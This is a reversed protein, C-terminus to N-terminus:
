ADATQSEENKLGHVTVRPWINWWKKDRMRERYDALKQPRSLAFPTPHCQGTVLDEIGLPAILSLTGSELRVGVPTVTECWHALAESVSAYPNDGNKVHMRAQNKVSWRQGPMLANLKCEQEKEFAEDTHAADFYVVDIDNLPTMDPYAHLCDWIYNRVFGAAVWWDPLNLTRVASLAQSHFESAKICGLIDQETRISVQAM